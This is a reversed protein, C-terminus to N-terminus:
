PDGYPNLENHNISVFKREEPLAERNMDWVNWQERNQNKKNQEDKFYIYIHYLFNRDEEIRRRM